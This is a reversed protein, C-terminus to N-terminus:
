QNNIQDDTPSQPLKISQSKLSVSICRNKSNKPMILPTNVSMSKGEWFAILVDTTDVILRNCFLLLVGMVNIILSLIMKQLDYEDAFREALSGVGKAGGSVM